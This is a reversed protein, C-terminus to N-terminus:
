PNWNQSPDATTDDNREKDFLIAFTCGLAPANGGSMSQRASNLKPVLPIQWLLGGRAFRIAQSVHDSTKL